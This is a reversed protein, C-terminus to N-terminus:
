RLRITEQFVIRSLGSEDQRSSRQTIPYTHYGAKPTGVIVLHAIEGRRFEKKVAGVQNMPSFPDETLLAVQFSILDTSKASEARPETLVLLGTALLLAGALLWRPRANM